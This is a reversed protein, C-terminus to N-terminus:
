LRAGDNKSLFFLILFVSAVSTEIVLFGYSVKKVWMGVSRPLYFDDKSILILKDNKVLLSCKSM